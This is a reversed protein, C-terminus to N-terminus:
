DKIEMINLFDPMLKSEELLSLYNFLNKEIFLSFFSLELENLM